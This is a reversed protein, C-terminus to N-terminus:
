HRRRRATRGRISAAKLKLRARGGGRHMESLAAGGTEGCRYRERERAGRNLDVLLLQGSPPRSLTAKARPPASTWSVDSHRTQRMAIARNGLQPGRGASSRDDFLLRRSRQARERRPGSPRRRGARAGGALQREGVDRLWDAPLYAAAFMSVERTTPARSTRADARRQRTGRTCFPVSPPVRQPHRSPM